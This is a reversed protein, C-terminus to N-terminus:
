EALHVEKFVWGFASVDYPMLTYGKSEEVQSALSEAESLDAAVVGQGYEPNWGVWITIM